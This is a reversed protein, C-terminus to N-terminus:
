AAAPAPTAAAKNKNNLYCNRNCFYAGERYYRQIKLVKKCSVCTKRKSKVPAEPQDAM